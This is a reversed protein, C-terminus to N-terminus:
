QALNNVFYPNALNFNRMEAFHKLRDWHNLLQTKFAEAMASFRVNLNENSVVLQCNLSEGNELDIKVNLANRRVRKLEDMQEAIAAIVGSATDTYNQRSEDYKHVVAKSTIINEDQKINLNEIRVSSIKTEQNEKFFVDSSQQVGREPMKHKQLGEVNFSNIQKTSVIGGRQKDENLASNIGFNRSFELNRVQIFKDFVDQQKQIGQFNHSAGSDKLTNNVLKVSAKELNIKGKQVKQFDENVVELDKVILEDNECIKKTEDLSIKETEIEPLIQRNEVILSVILTANFDKKENQDEPLKEEVEIKDGKETKSIEKLFDGDSDESTKKLSSELPFKKEYAEFNVNKDSLVELFEVPIDKDGDVTENSSERIEREVTPTKKVENTSKCLDKNCKNTEQPLKVASREASNGNKCVEDHQSQTQQKLAHSFDKFKNEDQSRSKLWDKIKSDYRETKAKLSFVDNIQLLNKM